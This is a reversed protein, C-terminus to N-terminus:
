LRLTETVLRRFLCYIFLNVNAIKWRPGLRISIFCGDCTLSTKVIFIKLVILTNIAAMRM